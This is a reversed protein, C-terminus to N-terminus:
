LKFIIAESDEYVKRIRDDRNIWTLMAPYQKDLLVYSTQFTNRAVEYVDHRLATTVGVWQWYHDRDYEYMFTQDLGTLYYNHTNHYFLIPFGGWDNQFVISGSPTNQKLWTSASALRSFQFGTALGERASAVGRWLGWPVLLLLYVGLFGLVLRGSLWWPLWSCFEQWLEGLNVRKDWADRVMLGISLVLWPTLYEVQRRARLTYLLFVVALVWTTRSLVSQRSWTLAAAVTALLWILIPYALNAALEAPGYPYWEGGVGIFKRYAVLAMAFLQKLYLLNTPFYPNIILGAAYGAIIVGFLYLNQQALFKKIFVTLWSVIKLSYNKIKLNPQNLLFQFNFISFKDLQNYKSEDNSMSEVAVYVVAMVLLLPWASYLWTFFWSWWFLWGYKRATILYYGLVAVGVGLAPAKGLSLRFLLPGATLLLVVGAGWWPVRWKMLCWACATITLAAFVTTALQLGSLGPLLSVFPLLLLHYGWHHDIFIQRYLSSQTWPFERLVGGDRLLTTLGVHYFSDPDALRGPPQLYSFVALAVLFVLVLGLAPRAVLYRWGWGVM